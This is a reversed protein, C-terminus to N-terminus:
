RAGEKAGHMQQYMAVVESMFTGEDEGGMEQNIDVPCAEVANAPEADTEAELNNLFESAASADAKIAALALEEATMPEEFLAKNVLEPNRINGQIENISRVREREKAVADAEVSAVFEPYAARMEAVNTIEMEGSEEVQPATEEVGQVSVKGRAAAAVDPVSTQGALWPPLTGLSALNHPVGAVMLYEGNASLKAAIPPYTQDTAATEDEAEDVAPILEDAFGQDIADQGVMWTTADLMARLDDETKNTREGYIRLISLECAEHDRLVDRLDPTSYFGFLFSAVNHIMVMSGPHVQIVDGACMIVSAASAALGDVIVTKRGKFSRLLNHITVGAFLDGGSSNLHIVIESADKIANLDNLVQDLSIYNGPEPEGTWWDIPTSEVVDGYYYVEAPNDGNQEIVNFFPGPTQMTPRSLAARMRQWLNPM